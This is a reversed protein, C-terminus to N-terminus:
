RVRLKKKEAQYNAELRAKNELVVQINATLAAIKEENSADQEIKKLQDDNGSTETRAQKASAEQIDTQSPSAAPKTTALSTSSDSTSVSNKKTKLSKITIELAQNEAKLSRYAHTVDKIIKKYFM